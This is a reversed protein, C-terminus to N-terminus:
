VVLGLLDLDLLRGGVFVFCLLVSLGDLLFCVLGVAVWGLPLLLVVVM